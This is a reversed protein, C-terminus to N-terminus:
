SPAPGSQRVAGGGRSIRIWVGLIGAASPPGARVIVRLHAIIPSDM